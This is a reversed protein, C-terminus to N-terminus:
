REPMLMRKNGKRPPQIKRTPPPFAIRVGNSFLLPRYGDPVLEHVLPSNRYRAIHAELGQLPQSWSVSCVKSSPLSWKSFGNLSCRLCEADAPSTLNVFAYGLAGHTEFDIPFYLFDLTGAFGMSHLLKVLCDRTYRIPLNRLMLTTLKGEGKLVARGARGARGLLVPAPNSTESPSSTRSNQCPDAMPREQSGTREGKQEQVPEAEPTVSSDKDSEADLSSGSVSGDSEDRDSLSGRPLPATKSRFASPQEQTDTSGAEEFHFFTSRISVTVAAM